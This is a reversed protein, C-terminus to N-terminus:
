RGEASRTPRLRHPREEPVPSRRNRV